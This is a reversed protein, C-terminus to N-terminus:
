EEPYQIDGDSMWAVDINPLYLRFTAGCEGLALM